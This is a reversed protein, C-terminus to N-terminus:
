ASRKEMPFRRGWHSEGLQNAGTLQAHHLEPGIENPRAVHSDFEQWTSPILGSHVLLDRQRSAAKNAELEAELAEGEFHKALISKAKETNKERFAIQSAKRALSQRICTTRGASDLLDGEDNVFCEGFFRERRGNSFTPL